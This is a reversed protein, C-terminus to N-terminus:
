SCKNDKQRMVILYYKYVIKLYLFAYLCHFPGLDQWYFVDFHIVGFLEFWVYFGFFFSSGSGGM